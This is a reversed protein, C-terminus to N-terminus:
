RRAIGCAAEPCQPKNGDGCPQDTRYQRTDLVSFEALDGFALRRYLQLSSGKPLSERRLPMHEYYAQYANARRELFKTRAASRGGVQRERLQQGGRSRGLHRDVSIARARAASRSRDQVARVPQPLRHSLALEPGTHQRPRGQACVRRRLHLRRSARSVDLEEQAMHQYPLSTARRSTSAPRLRSRCSTWRDEESRAGHADPRYRECHSGAKFRYWYWRAPELGRVEVHVSHALDPTAAARGKKVVHDMQEDTAIQWEVVLASRRCARRREASRSGTADLACRWRSDSRGLRRGVHVSQRAIKTKGSARLLAVRVHARSVPRRGALLARRSFRVWETM